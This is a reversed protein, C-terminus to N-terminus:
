INECNKLQGAKEPQNFFLKESGYMPFSDYGTDGNEKCNMNELLFLSIETVILLINIEIFNTLYQNTM